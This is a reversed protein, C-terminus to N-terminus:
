NVIYLHQQVFDALHGSAVIYAEHAQVEAQRQRSFRRATDLSVPLCLILMQLETEHTAAVLQQLAASCTQRLLDFQQQDTM